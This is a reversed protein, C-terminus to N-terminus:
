ILYSGSIYYNDSAAPIVDNIAINDGGTNIRMYAENIQVQGFCYTGTNYDVGSTGVSIAIQHNSDNKSNFPIAFRLTGVPADVSAINIIGVITVLRGIKTYLFLRYTAHLTITGSTSMTAAVEFEGEEYDDLTNPDSSPVATAPFAIQGGTLDITPITQQGINTLLQHEVGDDSMKYAGGGAKPYISVKNAAPTAPTAQEELIQQGM